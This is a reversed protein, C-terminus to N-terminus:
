SAVAPAGARLQEVAAPIVELACDIEAGTTEPGLTLRLSGFALQREVGMAALVHSPEMAGSACSSAASAFVDQRELLVLLAETEIGPICVHANGAIKAGRDGGTVGTEVLDPIHHFLGSLLRDRLAGVRNVTEARGAVTLRAAEALAVIGAVNHTGGRRDREQGGGMILPEIEVGERVVLAGCGKPGGFKHGSIAVLDAGRTLEAVDLWCLAQVADTHVLADPAQRRVREVVEPLPQITGVENNVAMVSVLGVDSDLLTDLHDLDVLGSPTIDVLDGGLHEVPELVAHHEFRSCLLRGGHRRAVGFVATNDAESGGGTFVIEGPQAGLVEAIIDRADEIARRADRAARHAGSPNAFTGRLYPEMAAIAEPRMPTTAGNDLYASM